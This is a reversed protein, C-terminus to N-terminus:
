HKITKERQYRETHGRLGQVTGIQPHRELTFAENGRLRRLQPPHAQAQSSSPSFLIALLTLVSKRM